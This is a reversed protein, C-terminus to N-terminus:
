SDRNERCAIVIRIDDFSVEQNLTNFLPKLCESGHEDIATEVCAVRDAPLWAAADQLNRLQIFKVLHGTVTSRTRDLQRCVEDISLRQDFLDLYAGSKSNM